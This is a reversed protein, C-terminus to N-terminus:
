LEKTQLCVRFYSFSSRVLTVVIFAVAGFEPSERLVDVETGEASAEEEGVLCISVELEVVVSGLIGVITAVCSWRADGWREEREILGMDETLVSSLHDM